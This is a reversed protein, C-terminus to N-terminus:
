KKFVKSFDSDDDFGDNEDFKDEYDKVSLIINAYSLLSLKNSKDMQRFSKLLKIENKTLHLEPIIDQENNLHIGLLYDASVNLIEAMNKLTEYNPERNNKIYGNLTSPSIFLQQALEKQTINRNLLVMLLRKGFDM